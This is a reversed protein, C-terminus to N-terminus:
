RPWAPLPLALLGVFLLTSFASLGLALATAGLFSRKKWALSATYVVLTTTLFLGATELLIGFLAAAGLILCPPGVALRTREGTAAALVRLALWAGMCFLAISLLGPILHPQIESSKGASTEALTVLGGAGLAMFALGALADDRLVPRHIRSIWGDDHSKGQPMPDVRRM